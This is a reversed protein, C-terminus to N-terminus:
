RTKKIGEIDRRLSAIDSEVQDLRQGYEELVRAAYEGSGEIVKLDGVKKITTGKPLLLKFGPNNGTQQVEMGEPLDTDQAFTRSYFLASIVLLGAIVLATKAM